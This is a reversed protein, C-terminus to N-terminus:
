AKLNRKSNKAQAMQDNTTTALSATHRAMKTTFSTTVM